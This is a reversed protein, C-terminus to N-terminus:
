ADRANLLHSTLGGMVLGWVLHPVFVFPLMVTLPVGAVLAFPVCGLPITALGAAAGVRLGKGMSDIRLADFRSILIGFVIGLMSGFLLHLVLGEETGGGILSGYLIFSTTLPQGSLQYEVLLAIDMAVTGMLCSALGYKIERSSSFNMARM